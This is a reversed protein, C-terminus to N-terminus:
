FIDVQIQIPDVLMSFNLSIVDPFLVGWLLRIDNTTTNAMMTVNMQGATYNTTISSVNLVMYPPSLVRLRAEPWAEAVSQPGWFNTQNGNHFIM